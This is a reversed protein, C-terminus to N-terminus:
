RTRTYPAVCCRSSGGPEGHEPFLLWCPSLRGPPPPLGKSRDWPDQTPGLRSSANPVGREQHRALRQARSPRRDLTRAAPFPRPREPPLPAEPPPHEERGSDGRDEGSCVLVRQSVLLNGTQGYVKPGLVRSGVPDQPQDHLQAPLRHLLTVGVNAEQVSAGLLEDLVLRVELYPAAPEWRKGMGPAPTQRHPSRPTDTQRIPSM